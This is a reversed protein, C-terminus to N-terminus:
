AQTGSSIASIYQSSFSQSSTLFYLGSIYLSVRSFAEKYEGHLKDELLIYAQKM